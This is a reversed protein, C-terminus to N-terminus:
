PKVKLAALGALSTLRVVSALSSSNRDALQDLQKKHADTVRVTLIIDSYDKNKKAMKARKYFISDADSKKNVHTNSAFLM